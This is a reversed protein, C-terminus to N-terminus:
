RPGQSAEGNCRVAQRIGRRGRGAAVLAPREAAFLHRRLITPLLALQEASLDLEPDYFIARLVDALQQGYSEALRIAREQVGARLAAESIRAVRDREDNWLRMLVQGEFSDTKDEREALEAHLWALQGASLHLVSLLAESPEVPIKDGFEARAKAVEKAAQQRVAAKMHNPSNGLHYKCHGVGLHPTGLGAFNRCKEGNKKKAGCTGYRDKQEKTYAM